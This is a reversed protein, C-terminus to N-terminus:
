FPYLIPILVTALIWFIISLPLGMKVFDSFKYSGASYVMTNTQYGVPTIFSASGAFTVALLFPLPDLQLSQAVSIAIPALLAAAANNSMIETFVVTTLYLAAIVATPGFQAAVNNNILSAVENSLGTKAMANGLSLAGGLLIIVKWDIAKYAQEMKIIRLLVLIFIAGLAGTMIPVVNFSALLVVAAILSSVITLQKKRVKEIGIESLLLFPAKRKKEAKFIKKYGNRNTQLLLVDGAKLSIDRFNEFRDKGRQRIALLRSEYSDFFNLDGVKESELQSNPLIVIEILKTEEEPFKRDSFTESLKLKENKLIKKIHELNGRVLLVDGAELQFEATPEERVKDDRLVQKVDIDDEETEFINGITLATDEREEGERYEGRREVVKIETLYDSVSRREADELKAKAPLIKGSFIFLYILGVSFFVLGLPAFTFMSFGELGSDRAIGDVLLNTSTGILTCTGGFIAGYSLPILYKSASRDTKRAADSIIPISTAVVPTNNIFASIAGVSSGIILLSQRYGKSFLRTFFPGVSEIIGTKILADGLVFMATVTVTARNSFGEISEAPTLVGSIALAVMIGIAVHDVSFYDIVFLIFALVIVAITIYAEITL